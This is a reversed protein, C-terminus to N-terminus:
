NEQILDLRVLQGQFFDASLRRTNGTLRVNTATLSSSKWRLHVGDEDKLSRQVRGDATIYFEALDCRLDKTQFTEDSVTGDPLEIKPMRVSDYMGM